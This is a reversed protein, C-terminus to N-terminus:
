GPLLVPTPDYLWVYADNGLVLRLLYPHSVGDIISLLMMLWITIGRPLTMCGCMRMADNGLAFRLLYIRSIGDVISLLM